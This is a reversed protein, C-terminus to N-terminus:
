KSASLAGPARYVVVRGNTVVLKGDEDVARMEQILLQMNGSRGVKEEVGVFHLRCELVDGAVIPREYNFYQEGALIRGEDLGVMWQQRQPPRFSTPFTPPAIVDAYGLHRALFTDRYLPNEDQLADAFLRIAGKEVEVIFPPTATGVLSKDINM